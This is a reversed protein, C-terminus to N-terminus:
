TLKKRMLYIRFDNEKEKAVKWKEHKPPSDFGFSPFGNSPPKLRIRLLNGKVLEDKWRQYDEDWFTIRIIKSNADEAEVSHYNNGKKSLLTKVERIMLECCATTVGQNEVEDMFKDVTYGEFDPSEELDHKWQFGYYASEAAKKNELLEITEPELEWKDPNFDDISFQIDEAEKVKVTQNKISSERKGRLRDFVKHLTIQRIRVNNKYNYNEDIIIDRFKNWEEYCSEEYRGCKEKFEEYSSYLHKVKDWYDIIAEELNTQQEVISKTYRNSSGTRKKIHDKYYTYFKYLIKNDYKEEFVGLSILSDLVKKETGFKNLFDLFSNYPQNDVVRQAIDHGVGKLNNFGIYVQNDCIEYTRKSKNVHLPQLEVGHKHADIKYEKIKSHDKECQFLATYFELPYHSKVWLQRAAILSYGYAHAKNFGYGSFADIQDWLNVLYERGKGLIKMGNEIFQEKYKAFIEVKKKSIAKRIKECQNLPIDGVVHLVGMVQEQYVLVGYTKGLIPVLVPHLEYIEEGKKRKVYSEDMGMDMPGPRYLSNYIPLDDFNVVGGKKVLKRIGESDFQFVGKLDAANAAKLVNPDNLYSEDSWDRKGEYACISKIGHRDRILQTAIGIQELAILALMDVKVLGVPQLDQSEQGETWASVVTGFKNEKTVSRIELPVFDTLPISSIILGGAHIGHSRHRGLNLYAADMATKNKECFNKFDPYIEIAKEWTIEDGDEDKGRIQKTVAQAEEHNIGHVRAMDLTSNKIGLTGYTSISCVNERGFEKVVWEDKLYDKIKPMFDLDVDPSEGMDYAFEKDVDFEDNLGLAWVVLLNHINTKVKCNSNYLDIFYDFGGQCDLEDLELRLRKQHQANDLGREILFETCKKALFDRKM